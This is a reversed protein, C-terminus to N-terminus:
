GAKFGRTALFSGSGGTGTPRPRVPQAAFGRKSSAVPLAFARPRMMSPWCGTGMQRRCLSSEPSQQLTLKRCRHTGRAAPNARCLHPPYGAKAFGSVVQPNGTLYSLAFLLMVAVIVTSTWYAIKRAM